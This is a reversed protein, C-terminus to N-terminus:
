IGKSGDLSSLPEDAYGKLGAYLYVHIFVSIQINIYM